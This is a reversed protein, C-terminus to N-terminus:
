AAQVVLRAYAPLLAGRAARRAVVRLPAGAAEAGDLVAELAVALQRQAVAFGLCFHPGAGYWLHRARADHVRGADFRDPDPFLAPDRAMNATLLVVRTGAAVRRGGLRTDRAAVRVTAPVPAAFRLGEAVARPVAAADGARRAAGLTALQGADALLAVLRPLAASTTLTGAVFVLSVVGRAEDFALGLDRLRRVFSGAPAGPGEYGRRALDALRACDAALARARRGAPPRFTLGAAIREGLAVLALAAADGEAGGGTDGGPRDAGPLPVGLLSYTLRGSAARSWRALDVARGAALDARLAALPPGLAALLAPAAAPAMLDALRARLLRHPEGDMNALAAPGLFRTFTAALSGPGNKPFDADRALVEHGLAAGSVVLGLGPV